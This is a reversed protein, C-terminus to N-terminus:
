CFHFSFSGKEKLVRPFHHNLSLSISMMAVSSSFSVAVKKSTLHLMRLLSSQSLIRFPKFALAGINLHLRFFSFRPIMALFTASLSENIFFPYRM